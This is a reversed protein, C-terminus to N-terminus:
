GPDRESDGVSPLERYARLADMMVRWQRNMREHDEPATFCADNYAWEVKQALNDAAAKLQQAEAEDGGGDDEPDYGQVSVSTLRGAAAIAETVVPALHDALARHDIAPFRLQVTVLVESEM